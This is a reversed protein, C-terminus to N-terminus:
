IKVNKLKKVGFLFSFLGAWSILSIINSVTRILTNFFQAYILHEGKGVQIWMRGWEEGEPIFVKTEIGDIFVRWNPFYLINIRVDAEKKVDIYFKAWYSGQEYKSVEAKGQMIEVPNARQSQSAVKATIPLYDYIGATQQIRWAEGSFKEKDTVKGVREPRFYNWNIILLLFVLFGSMLFQPPIMLNRILFGQRFRWQGFIGSIGGAVFSFCFTTLTLFRWPFQIYSLQPITQYIFISRLHTMFASFWGVMLLFLTVVSLRDNKFREILKGKARVLRLLLVGGIILSLIWHLHGIQFSMKDEAEVWVSPGYGWFRSVLLQRISVFHATYEYYGVLQSKIWTFKNEFAAPFTFFASLGLSWVGSVILKAIKRLWVPDKFINWSGTKVQWLNLLVWIGFFPTFILVMLNHSLLLLSYSVALWVIWRADQGNENRILKYSLWLILPFFVMAWAENMAGRVYVDVAHYPAWIYFVSSILGGFRGFFERAFFYMTIGSTLFSLFFLTKATETFAFGLFRIGQGMLYPLPPSFNFLPYGLGYGMDPVWRCPIQGDSFCKEMQLQRMMQLDDHMPFYGSKFLDRSSLLSFVLILLLSVKDKLKM